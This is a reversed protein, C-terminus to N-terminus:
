MRRHSHSSVGAFGKCSSEGWNTRSARTYASHILDSKNVVLCLQWVIMKKRKNKSNAECKTLLVMTDMHLFCCFMCLPNDVNRSAIIAGISNNDLRAKSGGASVIIWHIEPRQKRWRSCRVCVLALTDFRHLVDFETGAHAMASKEESGESAATDPYTTQAKKRPICVVEM